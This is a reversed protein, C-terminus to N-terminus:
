LENLAKLELYLQEYIPPECEIFKHRGKPYCIYDISGDPKYGVETPEVNEDEGLVTWQGDVRRVWNTECGFWVAEGNEKVIREIWYESDIYNEAVKPEGIPKELKFWESKKQLTMM